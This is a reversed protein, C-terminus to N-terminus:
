CKAERRARRLRRMNRAARANYSPKCLPCVRKLTGNQKLQREFARTQNEWVRVLEVHVGAAIAAAVLRSGEGRLHEDVRTQHDLAWGAYHEAHGFPRDFHLLYVTGRTSSRAM